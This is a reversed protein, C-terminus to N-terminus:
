PARWEMLVNIDDGGIRSFELREFLRMSPNFSEVYIHLPKRAAAAESQLDKILPKGLGKSRHEPLITIDLITIEQEERAVYVRGIPEDKKLIIDHSADPYHKRYHSQQAEFQMRLFAERQAENWPVQALEDMRTSAYVTFLFPEDDTEVPRLMVAPTDDTPAREERRHLDSM